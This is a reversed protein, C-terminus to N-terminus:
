LFLLPVLLQSCLVFPVINAVQCAENIFFYFSFLSFRSVLKQAHGGDVSRNGHSFTDKLFTLRRLEVELYISDTPDGTFLLFFYTRHVLSVNCTQWLEIIAKQLKEFQLRWDLTTAEGDFMPDLGVDRLTKRM